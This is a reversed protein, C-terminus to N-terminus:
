IIPILNSPKIHNLMDLYTWGADIGEETHEARSVGGYIDATVEWPKNYYDGTGLNLFSPIGIGLLYTMGGLQELQKTHGYEHKVENVGSGDRRIFLVGFSGSRTGNTRIVLKGKYSSFYNSELVKEESTNNKDYNNIDSRIKKTVSRIKNVVKKVKKVAKIVVRKAANYAKKMWSPWNGDEDNMNIPNNFCYAFMNYGILHGSIGSISDDANIFRCIVADYFRNNLYYLGLDADYYYGRYKLANYQKLPHEASRNILEEEVELGWANYFYKVLVNGQADIIGIVDGQQNLVYYGTYTTGNDKVEIKLPSGDNDYFYDVTVNGYTERIVKGDLTVYKHEVGNVTKTQRIGDM